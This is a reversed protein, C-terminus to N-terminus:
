SVRSLSRGPPGGRLLQQTAASPVRGGGKSLAEECQRYAFKAEEHMGLAVLSRILPRYLAEEGSEVAIAADCFRRMTSWDGKDALSDTLKKAIRVFANRLRHRADVVWPAADGSLLPARYLQLVSAALQTADEDGPDRDALRTLEFVDVWILAPNLTLTGQTALIAENCELLKRLRHAAIDFANRAADGELEPWLLDMATVAELGHKSTVLAKLLELPKRPAKGAMALPVDNLEIRLPGLARIRVKWPWEAGGHPPPPWNRRGIVWRCYSVEIGLRLADPVLQRLLQCGHHFSNAYGQRRGVDFARALSTAYASAPGTRRAVAAEVLRANFELLPTDLATASSCADAAHRLAEEHRGLATLIEAAGFKALAAGFPWLAREILPVSEQVLRLADHVHGMSLEHMARVYLFQSLAIPPMTRAVPELAALEQAVDRASKGPDGAQLQCVRLRLSEGELGHHEAIRRAQQLLDFGLKSDGSLHYQYAHLWLIQLRSVPALLREKLLDAVRRDLDGYQATRGVGCFFHQLASIGVVRDAIDVGASALATVRHILPLLDPHDPIAQSIAVLLGATIQLEMGATPFSPGTKFLAALRDIWVLMPRYDAYCANIHRLVAACALMQGLPEGDRCFSEYARELTARADLFSATFQYIGQWYSLWARADVLPAPLAAIWGALTQLRAQSVLDAAIREILGAAAEWNEARLHLGIAAEVDGCDALARAARALHAREFASGNRQRALGRLFSRFLPHYQYAHAAPRYTTFVNDQALRELLSQAGPRGTLREAAQASIVELVSTELLFEQLEDSLRSFVETALYDFVAQSGPSGDSRVRRQPDVRMLLTLGAPWGECLAYLEDAGLGGHAPPHAAAAVIEATEAQSLLLDEATLLALRDAAIWRSLAPVPDARSIVIVQVDAPIQECLVPLVQLLAADAPVDQWNDFVLTTGGGFSAFLARFFNRTFTPIAAFHEPLFAPLRVRSRPACSARAMALHYFVSAIDADGADCQYWIHPRASAQLHGAILTTKGYGAPASLWVLPAAALERLRLVLRERLRHAHTAPPTLKAPTRRAVRQSIRHASTM